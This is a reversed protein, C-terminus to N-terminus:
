QVLDHYKEQKGKTTTNEALLLDFLKRENIDQKMYERMSEQEYYKKVEELSAGSEEAMVLMQQEMEEDTASFNQEEMLTEVVLRSHLAKIVDPRWESTIEEYTKGSAGLIKLLDEPTTQFQRAMNRWRADLEIRIMSEPIEVPAGEMIKELLGNLTMDRLRKDLNKVFKERISARLDALTQYKEDVDQAFDDDLDPLLKSKLATMTVRLKVTRGALDKDIFDDPYTKEFERTEDKKMGTIEEDFRYM